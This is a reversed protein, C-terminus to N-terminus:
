GPRRGQAPLPAVNTEVKIGFTPVGARIADRVYSQALHGYHKEVMRTDAHGLNAALVMLPVGNMVALSAHTHRLSHFDCPPEIRAGRCAELLPRRQHSKGWRRGDQRALIPDAPARGATVAAFFDLGEDTLHVHRAKGTKSTRVHLTGADRDFDRVDLAALEGYRCGSLLAAQVLRRFAPECANTLRRCEDLQLYRVRAADVGRFPKVKRWAADSAVKGERWAHNLGAKLVTLTRNASARRRRVAEPDDADLDRYRQERGKGRRLRAPTWASAELWDRIRKTTLRSLEVDGLEPAILAEIRSRTDVTSKRNAEFWALYDDLANQVTYPGAPEEVGAQERALAAMKERAKAQAQRWDLVAVSDADARDDATGITEVKYAQGGLYIRAVWRGTTKGKRYGLHLGHDIARYYPRGAPALRARATRTDLKADKVARPM